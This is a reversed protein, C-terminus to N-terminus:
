RGRRRARRGLDAVSTWRRVSAMRRAFQLPKLEPSLELARDYAALAQKHEGLQSLIGGHMWHVMVNDPQLAVAQEIATLAERPRKLGMLAAARNGHGYGNMADIAIARNSAELAATWDGQGVLIAARNVVAPLFDPATELADDLVALAEGPRLQGALDGARATLEAARQTEPSTIYDAYREIHSGLDFGPQEGPIAETSGGLKAALATVFDADPMKGSSVDVSQLHILQDLRQGSLLLPFIPRGADEAVHLEREVHESGAAAESMVVVVAASSRIKSMLEPHWRDGVPIDDDWYVSLGHNQLHDVLRATYDRDSRSYSVFVYGADM